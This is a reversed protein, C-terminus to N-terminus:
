FLPHLFLSVSVAPYARRDLGSTLPEPAPTTRPPVCAGIGRRRWDGGLLWLLIPM